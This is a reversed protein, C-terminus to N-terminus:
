APEEASISVVPSTRNCKLFTPDEVLSLVAHALWLDEYTLEITVVRTRKPGYGERTTTNVKIAGTLYAGLEIPENM